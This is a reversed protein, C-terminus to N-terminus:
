AGSPERVPRVELELVEGARLARLRAPRGPTWTSLWRQLAEVGQTPQEDLALIRDGARLGAADAPSGSSVNVIEVSEPTSLGLRRALGAELARTRVVLGLWAREVRGKALLQPIVWEATRAPIAFGIGQAFPLIATNIGIVRGVTDLLPGGSNGPNLPATHQIVGEILRGDRGALTRGVASVVGTSVTSHFGLPNGIAIALQGPRAREAPSLAAFPLSSGEARVVALDTAADAGVVRAELARGDELQVQIEGAREVVHANTVLYGDPAVVVGSGAGASAAPGQRPRVALSVVAPAVADVVDVVARSYADLLAGDREGRDPRGPDRGGQPAGQPDRVLRLARGARGNRLGAQKM